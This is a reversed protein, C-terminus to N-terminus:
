QGSGGLLNDVEENRRQRESERELLRTIGEDVIEQAENAYADLAAEELRVSVFTQKFALRGLVREGFLESGLLEFMAASHWTDGNLSADVLCRYRLGASNVGPSRDCDSALLLRRTVPADLYELYDDYYTTAQSPYGSISYATKSRVRDYMSVDYPKEEIERIDCFQGYSQRECLLYRVDIRFVQDSFFYAQVIASKDVGCRTVGINVSAHEIPEYPLLNGSIPQDLARRVITDRSIIPVRITLADIPSCDSVESLARVAENSGKGLLASWQFPQAAEAAFLPAAAFLAMLLVSFGVAFLSPM